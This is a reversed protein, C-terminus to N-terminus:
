SLQKLDDPYGMPDGVNHKPDLFDEMLVPDCWIRRETREFISSSASNKTMKDMALCMELDDPNEQHNIFVFPYTYVIGEFDIGNKLKTYEVLRPKYDCTAHIYDPLSDFLTAHNPILTKSFIAVEGTVKAPEIRSLSDDYKVLRTPTIDFTLDISGITDLPLISGIIDERM